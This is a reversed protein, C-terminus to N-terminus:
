FGYAMHLKLLRDQLRLPSPPPYTGGRTTVTIAAVAASRRIGSQYECECVCLVRIAHYHVTGVHVDCTNMTVDRYM